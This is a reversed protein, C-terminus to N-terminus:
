ARWRSVEVGVSSGMEDDGERRSRLLSNGHGSGDSRWPRFRERGLFIEGDTLERLPNGVLWLGDPVEHASPDEAFTDVEGAEGTPRDEEPRLDLSQEAFSRM